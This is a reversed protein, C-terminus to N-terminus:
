GSKLTLVPARQCFMMILSRCFLDETHVQLRQAAAEHTNWAIIPEGKLEDVQGEGWERDPRQAGWGSTLALTSQPGGARDRLRAREQFGSGRIEARSRSSVEVRKRLGQGASDPCCRFLPVGGLGTVTREPQHSTLTPTNKKKNGWELQALPNRTIRMKFLIVLIFFIIWHPKQAQPQDRLDVCVCIQLFMSPYVLVTWM